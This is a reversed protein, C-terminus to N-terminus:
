IRSKLKLQGIIMDGLQRAADTSLYTGGMINVVLGGGGSLQSNPVISGSMSPTFMEAGHEGVMYTSGAFVAGGGAKKGSVSKVAGSVASSVASAAKKAAEYIDGLFKIVSKFTDILPQFHAVMADVAEMVMIKIGEWITAWDTALLQVINYLNYAILVLGGIAAAIGVVIAAVPLSVVSLATMAVALASVVAIMGTIAGAVIIIWKTLEPNQEIWAAVGLLIPTIAKALEIVIPLLARGITEQTEGLQNKLIEMQGSFTGAAAAASGGFEKNLEELILKQAEATKGTDVLSQIVAKQDETFSVGVKSLASIGRIPDNLAKGVQIAASKTDSGLATAMDLIVPTTENLVEEKIGTFTLLLSQVSNVAEDSYTTTKQLAAAQANLAEISTGAANGTSKLVANLQAQAKASEEAADFAGKAFAAIGAFAIGAAAGVALLTQQNNKLTTGVKDLTASAQDKATIVVELQTSASM